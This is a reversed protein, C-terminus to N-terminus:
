NYIIKSQLYNVIDVRQYQKAKKILDTRDLSTIHSYLFKFIESQDFIIAICLSINDFQNYMSHLFKVINIHGNRIAYDQSIALGFIGISHLYKIVELYERQHSCVDFYNLIKRNRFYINFKFDINLHKCVDHYEDWNNKLFYVFCIFLISM